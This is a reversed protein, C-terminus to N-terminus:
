FSAKSIVRVCAPAVTAAGCVSKQQWETMTSGLGFQHVQKCQQQQQQQQLTHTLPKISFKLDPNGQDM